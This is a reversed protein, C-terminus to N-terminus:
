PVAKGCTHQLVCLMAMVELIVVAKALMKSLPPSAGADEVQFLVMWSAQLSVPVLSLLQFCFLCWFWGQCFAGLNVVPLSM